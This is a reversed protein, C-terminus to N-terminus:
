TQEVITYVYRTIGPRSSTSPFPTGLTSPWPSGTTSFSLDIRRKGLVYDYEPSQPSTTVVPRQPQWGLPTLQDHYYTAIQDVTADVQYLRTLQAEADLLSADNTWTQILTSGPYVIAAEPLKALDSGKLQGCGAVVVAAALAVRLSGPRTAPCRATHV